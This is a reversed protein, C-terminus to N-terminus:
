IFHLKSVSNCSVYRSVPPIVRCLKFDLLQARIGFRGSFVRCTKDINLKLFLLAGEFVMINWLEHSSKKGMYVDIRCSKDQSSSNRINAHLNELM